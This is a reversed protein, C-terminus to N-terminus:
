WPRWRRKKRRKDMLQVKLIGACIEVTRLAELDNNTKVEQQKAHLAALLEEAEALTLQDDGFKDLLSVWREQLMPNGPANLNLTQQGYTKTIGGWLPEMQTELRKVRGHQTLMFGFIAGLFFVLAAMVSSGFTIVGQPIHLIIM